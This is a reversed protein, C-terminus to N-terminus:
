NMKQLFNSMFNESKYGFNKSASKLYNLRWMAAMSSSKKQIQNKKRKKARYNFRNIVFWKILSKTMIFLIVSTIQKM